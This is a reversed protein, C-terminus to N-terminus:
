PGVNAERKIGDRVLGRGERVIKLIEGIIRFGNIASLHSGSIDRWSELPEEWIIMKTHNTKAWSLVIELDFFWRTKFPTLISNKFNDSAEFIKFGCQSDYPMSPVFPSLLTNIFRGLYHRRATRVINRGNLAVRSAWVSNYIGPDVGNLSNSANKLIKQTAIELIRSIDDKAFAGDADIFGVLETKPWYLNAKSGSGESASAFFHLLGTRVAEGKGKNAPLRLLERRLPNPLNALKEYTVDSSGDDVFIWHISDLSLLDEWYKPHWRHVENYCPVVLTVISMRSRQVGELFKEQIHAEGM